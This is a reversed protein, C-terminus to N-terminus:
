LASSSELDASLLYLSSTADATRSKHSEINHFYSLVCANFLPSSQM